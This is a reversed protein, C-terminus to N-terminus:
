KKRFEKIFEVLAVGIYYWGTMVRVTIFLWFACGTAFKFKNYM